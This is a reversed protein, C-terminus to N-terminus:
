SLGCLIKKSSRWHNLDRNLFKELNRIDEEFYNALYDYTSEKMPPYELKTLNKEKILSYVRDKTKEGFGHTLIFSVARRLKNPRLVLRHVTKNQPIKAPNQKEIPNVQFKEIELFDFIKNCTKVPSSNLDDLLLVQLNERPFYKLYSSIVHFYLGRRKYSFPDVRTTANTRKEEIELAKEFPLNELLDKIQYFYSSYARQIPNRLIYILKMEKNFDYIRKITQNLKLYQSYGTSADGVRKQNKYGKFFTQYYKLGKQYRIERAFYHPEKPYSMLIDPHQKLYEYLSTSGAKAAGILLFNPSPHM